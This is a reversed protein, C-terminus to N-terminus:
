ENGWDAKEKLYRIGKLRAADYVEKVESQKEEPVFRNITEATLYASAAAMVCTKSILAALREIGPQQVNRTEQRIISCIFDLNDSGVELQLGNLTLTRVLEAMSCSKRAALKQINEYEEPTFKPSIRTNM